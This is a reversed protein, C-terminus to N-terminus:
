KMFTLVDSKTLIGVIKQDESLLVANTYKLLTKAVEVNEQSSIIPFPKEMINRVIMRRLNKDMSDIIRKESISGVCMGKDLVPIQSIDFNKMIEIAALVKTTPEVSILEKKMIKKCKIQKNEKLVSMIKNVTSLTPNVKENEIKAIHAQSIGITDALRNQSLGREERLKRITKGTIIVM